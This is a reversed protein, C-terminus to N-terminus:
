NFLIYETSEEIMEVLNNSTYQYKDPLDLVFIQPLKSYRYKDAITEKHKNEM